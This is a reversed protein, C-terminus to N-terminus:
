RRSRGKRGADAIMNRRWDWREATQMDQDGAPTQSVKPIQRRPSWTLLIACGPTVEDRSILLRAQNTRGLNLETTKM